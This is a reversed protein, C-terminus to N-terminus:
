VLSFRYMITKEAGLYGFTIELPFSHMSTLLQFCAASVFILPRMALFFQRSYIILNM